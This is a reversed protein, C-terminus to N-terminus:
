KKMYKNQKKQHAALLKENKIKILRKLFLTNAIIKQATRIRSYPM